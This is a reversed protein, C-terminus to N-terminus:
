DQVGTLQSIYKGLKVLENNRREIDGAQHAVNAKYMASWTGKLTELVPTMSGKDAWPKDLVTASLMGLLRGYRALGSANGMAIGWILENKSAKKEPDLMLGNQVLTFAAGMLAHSVMFNKMHKFGQTYNGQKFARYSLDASQTAIRHIQGAGSTFMSMARNLSSGTRWQSINSIRTSQQTAESLMTWREVFPAMLQDLETRKDTGKEKALLEAQRNVKKWSTGAKRMQDMVYSGGANLIPFRDGYKINAGLVQDIKQEPILNIARQLNVRMRQGAQQLVGETYKYNDRKRAFNQDADLPAHGRDAVFPQEKLYNKLEYGEPTFLMRTMGYSWNAPDMDMMYMMSSVTQKIGVSRNLYLIGKSMRRILGDLANWKDQQTKGAFRDIYWDIADVYQRGHYQTIMARTKPDRFTEDLKRVTEAWNTYHMQDQMYKDYVDMMDMYVFPDKSKSREIHHDSTLRARFNEKDGIDTSSRAFEGAERIFPWYNEISGLSVGNERRYVPDVNNLKYRNMEDRLREALAKTEPKIFNELQEFTKDTWGMGGEEKPRTFTERAGEQQLLMWMHGAENQSLPLKKVTGTEDLTIDLVNPEQLRNELLKTKRQFEKKFVTGNTQFVDNLIQTKTDTYRAKDAAHGEESKSIGPMFEKNIPDGFITVVEGKPLKRKSSLTSFLSKLSMDGVVKLPHRTKPAKKESGIQLPEKEIPQVDKVVNFRRDKEQRWEERAQESAMRDMKKVAKLKDLMYKLSGADKDALFAYDYQELLVREEPTYGQLDTGEPMEEGRERDLVRKNAREELKKVEEHVRERFEPSTLGEQVIGNLTEFKEIRSYGSIPNFYSRKAKKKGMGKGTSETMSKPDVEKTIRSIMAEKARAEERYKADEIM